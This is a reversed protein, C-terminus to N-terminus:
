MNKRAGREGGSKVMADRQRKKARYLVAGKMEANCMGVRFQVECTAIGYINGNCRWDFLQIWVLGRLKIGRVCIGFEESEVRLAASPGVESPNEIQALGAM